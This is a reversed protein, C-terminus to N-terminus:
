CSKKDLNLEKYVSVIKHRFVFCFVSFFFLQIESVHGERVRYIIRSLLQKVTCITLNNELNVVKGGIVHRYGDLCYQIVINDYRM